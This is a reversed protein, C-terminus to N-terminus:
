RVARATTEPESANLFGAVQAGFEAPHKTTEYPQINKERLQAGLGLGSIENLRRNAWRKKRGPM